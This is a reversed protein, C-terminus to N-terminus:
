LGWETEWRAQEEDLEYYEEKADQSWWSFVNGNTQWLQEIREVRYKARENDEQPPGVMRKLEILTEADRIAAILQEATFNNKTM